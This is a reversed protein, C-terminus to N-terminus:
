SSFRSTINLKNEIWRSIPLKGSFYSQDLTVTMDGLQGAWRDRAWRDAMDSLAPAPATGSGLATHLPWYAAALLEGGVTHEELRARKSSREQDEKGWPDGLRALWGELHQVLGPSYRM